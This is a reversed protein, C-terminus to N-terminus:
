ILGVYLCIKLLKMVLFYKVLFYSLCVINWNRVLCKSDGSENLSNITRQREMKWIFKNPNIFRFFLKFYNLYNYVIFFM